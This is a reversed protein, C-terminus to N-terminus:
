GWQEWEVCGKSSDATRGCCKGSYYYDLVCLRVNRQQEEGFYTWYGALGINEALYLDNVTQTTKWLVSRWCDVLINRGIFTYMCIFLSMTEGWIRINCLSYILIWRRISWICDGDLKCCSFRISVLLFKTGTWVMGTEWRVFGQTRGVGNLQLPGCTDAGSGGIGTLADNILSKASSTVLLFFSGKGLHFSSECDSLTSTLNVYRLVSKAPLAFIGIASDAQQPIIYLSISVIKSRLKTLWLCDYTCM